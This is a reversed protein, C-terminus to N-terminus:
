PVTISCSKTQGCVTTTVTWTGSAPNPTNQHRGTGPRIQFPAGNPPTVTVQPVDCNAPVGKPSNAGGAYYIPTRGGNITGFGIACWPTCNCNTLPFLKVEVKLQIDAHANQNTVPLEIGVKDTRSQGSTPDTYTFSKFFQVLNIGWPLSDLTFTSNSSVTTSAGGAPLEVAIGAAPANSADTVFGTLGGGIKQNTRFYKYPGDPDLSFNTGKGINIWPGFINEACALAIEQAYVIKVLMLLGDYTISGPRLLSIWIPVTFYNPMKATCTDTITHWEGSLTAKVTEGLAPADLLVVEIFPWVTANSVVRATFYRSTIPDLNVVVKCDEHYTPEIDIFDYPPESYLLDSPLLLFELPREPFFGSENGWWTVEHARIGLTVLLSVLLFYITRM